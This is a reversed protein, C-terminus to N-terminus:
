QGFPFLENFRRAREGCKTCPQIGLAAFGHKMVDGIGAPASAAMRSMGAMRAPGSSGLPTSFSALAPSPGGSPNAILCRRSRALWVLLALIVGWGGWTILAQGVCGWMSPVRVIIAIIAVIAAIIGFVFILVTVVDIAALIVPCATLFRCVIWWILFLILGITLLVGGIIGVVLGAYPYFHYLVCGIIALLGGVFMCGLAVWLLVDCTSPGGGNTSPPPCAAVSVSKTLVSDPCGATRATVRVTPSSPAAYDHVPAAPSNTTFLPSGDGFDWEYSNASGGSVQANLNVPRTTAGAGCNGPTVTIDTVQPCPAGCGDVTAQRSLAHVCNANRVVTLNVTYPTQGSGPAPYDHSQTTGQAAPLGVQAPNADWTWYYLDAPNTNALVATATVTRTGTTPNCPGVQTNINLITLTCPPPACPQVVVQVPVDPCGTPLVIKLKAPYTGPAYDHQGQVPGTSGASVPPGPPGVTGDGFDWYAVVIQGAPATVQASLTVARKGNICQASVQPPNTLVPPCDTGGGCQATVAITVEACEFPPGLVKLTAVYTGPSYDHTELHAHPTAATGGANNITFQPGTTGDGYDWYFTISAGAAIAINADLTVPQRPPTGNCPAKTVTVAARYCGACELRGKVTTRCGATSACAVTVTIEDDCQAANTIPLMATFAGTAPDAPIPGSPATVSSSIVVQDGACGRIVGQVLLQSPKLSGPPTVGRFFLTPIECCNLAKTSQDFCNPQGTCEARVQVPDGCHLVTATVPLDVWWHGNVDIPVAGSPSTVSTTVTVTGSVCQMATGTVRITSPDSQGPQVIGNVSTITVTCAM